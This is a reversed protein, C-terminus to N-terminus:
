NTENKLYKRPNYVMGSLFYKSFRVFSLFNLNKRKIRGFVTSFYFQFASGIGRIKSNYVLQARLRLVYITNRVAYFAKADSYNMELFPNLFNDKEFHTARSKSILYGKFGKERMRFTYEVDDGWLFFDPIPFGVSKIANRAFLVSGFSSSLILHENMLQTISKLISNRAELYPLNIYSLSNDPAYIVSSLFGIVNDSIADSTLFMQLANKEPIVDADLSWIWDYGKEYALKIGTYQGGASGTNPQTIVNLDSQANLWEDTGDTSSNNIIIIENPRISQNRLSDICKQLLNIRNFTVVVAAVNNEV